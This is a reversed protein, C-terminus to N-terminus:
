ELFYNYLDHRISDKLSYHIEFANSNERELIVPEPEGIAEIEGLFYFEKAEKDDKNKRVFLYIKNEKDEENRKYIHNADKSDVKRPHKSLAILSSPTEFRDEYQIADDNKEYNIFVPLTKTYSDYKYGGINQANLNNKWNLLHCVDEYSYKKNLVFNTNNYRNIYENEYKKLGYAILESVMEKFESDELAKKFDKSINEDENIFICPAYKNQQNSNGFKNTMTRILSTREIGTLSIQYKEKLLMETKDILNEYTGNLLLELLILEHPRKARGIEKSIFELMIEQEKKLRIEFEPEYEKLFNYYSGKRDFFKYVDISGFKEFDMIGPIRGLKFKLNKYSEKLLAITNTKAIDISEYIRKKSIEDFHITSVGPIISNGSQVYRRMNDKNYTKDGSLAIPIMYNNTYNGIFDIIVVFEKDKAKRLGRGLQQVFIIPSETPRLMIIQNVKPLDVGENFIDVTFIYDLALENEPMILRDMAEAREKTSNNGGLSVARYGRKNFADAMYMAEETRSCFVLGRLRDGSYGFYEAQQIVHDVRQEREVSNFMRFDDDDSLPKGNIELESVGFYHFPCLLEEELADKLRIECAINHNFLEFIDFDDTREPSATMGLWLDPKFFNMIRQYTPAGARHVEDIIIMDFYDEGFQKMTEPKSMTQMTSFILDADFDKTTGTLLGRTKKNGFVKGYSEMAQRAIEERHVLFLMKGPNEERAAFASAYSKGTGTSSILLVRDAGKKRLLSINELFESQMKNPRLKYTDFDVIQEDRVLERQQKAIKYKIEYDKKCESYPVTCPDEWLENYEGNIHNSIEGNKTSIFRTNWEKNKNLAAATINSSGIILINIDERQFIYGKTHFGESSSTKYMRLEVNDMKELKELAKPESFTLYDTTLIKGKIGRENLEKLIMLLPELGGLTIFAVSIAFSQCHRLEDELVSLVKRGNKYDNSVLSPRYKESSVVNGDICATLLGKEIESYVYDYDIKMHEM